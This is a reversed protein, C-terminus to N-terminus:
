TLYICLNWFKCAVTPSPTPIHRHSDMGIGMKTLIKNWSVRKEDIHIYNRNLVIKESLERRELVTFVIQKFEWM